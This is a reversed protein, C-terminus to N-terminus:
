TTNKRKFQKWLNIMYDALEIKEQNTLNIAIIEQSDIDVESLGIIGSHQLGWIGGLAYIIRGSSFVIANDTIKM